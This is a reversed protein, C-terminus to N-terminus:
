RVYFEWHGVSTFGSLQSNDGCEMRPNSGWPYQMILIHWTGSIYIQHDYVSGGVGTGTPYYQTFKGGAAWSMSSTQDDDLFRYESPTPYTVEMVFLRQLYSLVVHVQYGSWDKYCKIRLESFGHTSVMEQLTELSLAYAGNAVNVLSQIGNQKVSDYHRVSKESETKVTVNAVMLWGGNDTIMDCYFTVVDGGQGVTYFGSELPSANREKLGECSILNGDDFNCYVPSSQGELSYFDSQCTECSQKIENCDIAHFNCYVPNSQGELSYFGSEYTEFSQKIENCDIPQKCQLQNTLICCKKTGNREKCEAQKEKQGFHLWEEGKQFKKEDLEGANEDMLQCIKRSPNFNVSKCEEPGFVLCEKICDPPNTVKEVHLLVKGFVLKWGRLAFNFTIQSQETSHEFLWLILINLLVKM